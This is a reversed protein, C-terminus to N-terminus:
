ENSINLVINTWRFFIPICSDGEISSKDALGRTGDLYAIVNCAVIQSKLIKSLEISQM